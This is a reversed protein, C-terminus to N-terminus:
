KAYVIMAKNGDLVDYLLWYVTQQTKDAFAQIAYEADADTYQEVLLMAYTDGNDTFAKQMASIFKNKSIVTLTANIPMGLSKEAKPYIEENDPHFQQLKDEFCFLRALRYRYDDDEKKPGATADVNYWDGDICVMNWTHGIEIGDGVYQKEFCEIGAMNAILSFMNASGDCHSRGLVLADYLYSKPSNDEKDLYDYYTVNSIVYEHLYGAKEVDSLGEPIGKVINKAETIAKKKDKWLSKTFNEVCIYYGEFHASKGKVDYTTAFSGMQYRLNQELLPSDLAYFILADVLANESSVIRGDVYIYKYGKELAYDMALYVSREGDSLKKYHFDSRYDDAILDQEALEERSFIKECKQETVVDNSFGIKAIKEAALVGNGSLEQVLNTVYLITMVGFAAAFIGVIIRRLTKM